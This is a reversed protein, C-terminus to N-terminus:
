QGISRTRTRVFANKGADAKRAFRSRVSMGSDKEDREKGGNGYKEREKEQERDKNKEIDSM